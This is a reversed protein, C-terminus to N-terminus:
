GAVQAGAVQTSRRPTGQPTRADLRVWSGTTDVQDASHDDLWVGDTALYRFRHEGAPLVVSVSRRGGRRAVLEHRGPEWANFDGVVSVAGAPEGPPLSFTVRNKGGFLPARSLM